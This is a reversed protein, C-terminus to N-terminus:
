WYHINRDSFLIYEIWNIMNTLYKTKDFKKSPGRSASTSLQVVLKMQLDIQLWLLLSKPNMHTLKELLKNITAEDYWVLYEM